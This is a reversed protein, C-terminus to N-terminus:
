KLDWGAVDDVYVQLDNTSESRVMLGYLGGSYTSDNIQTILIGNVYLQFDAGKASIGLINTQNAGSLIAPSITWNQIGNYNGDDMRYIRYRGDCSLSFIYGSNIVGNPKDPARVILGYGDTGSCVPGFKFKAQLYFDDLFGPQAVRWQDGTPKDATIQLMGDEIRYDIGSGEGLYWPSSKQDFTVTWSPAGLNQPGGFPASVTGGNSSPIVKIKVWFAVDAGQGLGFEQGTNSRLKWYGQFRGGEQPAKQPLYIQIIEGPSVSKGIPSPSTGNMQDGKVYVLAYDATWTCTGNNRLTWTKIFEQGSAFESDDPITEGVFKAANTCNSQARPATNTPSATDIPISSSTVEATTTLFGQSSPTLLASSPSINSAPATATLFQNVALATQTQAVIIALNPTAASKQPLNCSSTALIAFLFVAYAFIFKATITKM